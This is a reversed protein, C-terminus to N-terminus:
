KRDGWDWSEFDAPVTVPDNTFSHDKRLEDKQTPAPVPSPPLARAQPHSDTREVRTRELAVGLSTVGFLLIAGGFGVLILGRLRSSIKEQAKTDADVALATFLYLDDAGNVKQVARLQAILQESLWATSGLSKEPTDGSGTIILMSSNGASQAVTYDPGLGAAQLAEGTERAALRAIAVQVILSSDPARLYPNNSNLRALRTSKQMEEATPVQPRALAFTATSQYVRPGLLLVYLAGLATLIVVPLALLRHRWVTRLISLLDM